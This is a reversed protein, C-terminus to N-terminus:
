RSREEPLFLSLIFSCYCVLFASVYHYTLAGLLEPESRTIEAQRWFLKSGEEVRNTQLALQALSGVAPECEPDIELARKCLEEAAAIDQKSQFITLGKNVMPLVNRSKPRIIPTHTLHPLSCLSSFLDYKALELEIARDFKDIADDFRQQDLLLEGSFSCLGRDSDVDTDDAEM